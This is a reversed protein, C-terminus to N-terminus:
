RSTETGRGQTRLGKFLAVCGAAGVVGLCSALIDMWSFFRGPIWLQAVELGIAAGLGVFLGPRFGLAFILGLGLGGFAPLNRLDGHRDAWQGIWAPLWPLEALWPSRRWALFAFLGLLWAVCLLRLACKGVGTM